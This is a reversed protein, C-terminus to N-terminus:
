PYAGKLILYVIFFHCFQKGFFCPDRTTEVALQWLRFLSPASFRAVPDRLKAHELGAEAFLDRSDYGYSDIAKALLLVWSSLASYHSSTPM